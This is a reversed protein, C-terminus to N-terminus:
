RRAQEEYASLLPWLREGEPLDVANRVAYYEIDDKISGRRVAREVLKSFRGRVETLTPLGQQQLALDVSAVREQTWGDTMEVIDNIAM